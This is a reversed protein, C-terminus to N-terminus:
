IYHKFNDGLNYRYKDEYGAVWYGQAYTPDTSVKETAVWYGWSTYDNQYSYKGGIVKDPLTAMAFDYNKGNVTKGEVIMAQM